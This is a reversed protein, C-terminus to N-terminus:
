FWFYPLQMWVVTQELQCGQKSVADVTALCPATQSSSRQNPSTSVHRQAASPKTTHRLGGKGGSGRGSTGAQRQVFIGAAYTKTQAALFIHYLTQTKFSAFSNLQSNPFRLLASSYSAPCMTPYGQIINESTNILRL